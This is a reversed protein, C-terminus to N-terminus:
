SVLEPLFIAGAFAALSLALGLLADRRAGPGRLAVGAAAVGAIGFVLALVHLLPWLGNMRDIARLLIVAALAIVALVGAVFARRAFRTRFEDRSPLLTKSGVPDPRLWVNRQPM